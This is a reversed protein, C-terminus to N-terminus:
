IYRSTTDCDASSDNCKCATSVWTGVVKSLSHIIKIALYIEGSKIGVINTENADRFLRDQIVKPKMHGEM